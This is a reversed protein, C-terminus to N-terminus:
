EHGVLGHYAINARCVQVVDSVEIGSYNANRGHVLISTLTTIVIISAIYTM